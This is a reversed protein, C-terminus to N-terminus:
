RVNSAVARAWFKIQAKMDEASSKDVWKPIPPTHWAESLYPRRVKDGEEEKREKTQLGPLIDVVSQSLEEAREFRFGLDKFGQVEEHELESVSKMSVSRNLTRPKMDIGSGTSKTPVKDKAQPKSSKPAASSQKLRKSSYRPPLANIISSDISSRRTLKSMQSGKEPSSTAGRRSVGGGGDEKGMCPPLSPARVLRSGKGNCFVPMAQRILDGMSPEEAEYEEAGVKEGGFCPPLSPTRHLGHIKGNRKPNFEFLLADEETTTTISSSSSSSPSPSPSPSPDSNCRVMRSKGKLLSNGFFWSDELWNVAQQKRAIPDDNGEM